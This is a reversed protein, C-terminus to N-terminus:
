RDSLLSGPKHLRTPKNRNASKTPTDSLRKLYAREVFDTNYENVYSFSNNTLNSIQIMHTRTYTYPYTYKITMYLVSENQVYNYTFTYVMTTDPNVIYSEYEQTADNWDTYVTDINNDRMEGTKNDRFVLQIGDDINEPDLVTTEITAPSPNGAYDINYYEMKEVGWTGIFSKYALEEDQKDKCSTFLLGVMALAAFFRVKKM